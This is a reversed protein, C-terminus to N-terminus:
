GEKGRNEAHKGVKKEALKGRKSLFLGTLKRKEIIKEIMTCRIDSVFIDTDKNTLM